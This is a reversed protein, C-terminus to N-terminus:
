YWVQRNDRYEFIREEHGKTRDKLLLLAGSPIGDFVLHNCKAVERGALRWGRDFYYLEYLHGPEVNNTDSKPTFRIRTVIQSRGEGLDLGIWYKTSKASAVTEPKGDFALKINKDYVKYAIHHGTLKYERGTDDSSYFALEALPTRSNPSTKYRLYRYAPKSDSVLVEMDGYPMRDVIGLTDPNNFSPNDSGEFVGGKMNGWQNTLYSFLPYKRYLTVKEPSEDNPVFTRVSGDDGLLFPLGVIALRGGRVAAVTYVVGTGSANFVAKGSSPYTWAVPMWGSGTRFVCLCAPGDDDFPVSIDRCLGYVSSVDMVFPDALVKPIGAPAVNCRNYVARYIKAVKKESAVDFPCSDQPEVIYKVPFISADIKNYRKAEKEKEYVTYTAGDNMVLSVWSHGVQSYNAWLPVVDIAVPIALARLVSALLICRQECSAQQLHDITLVDIVYPCSPISQRVSDVIHRYVSVFAECLNTKGEILPLYKERLSERWGECLREDKVRYPLIYRCFHDFSISDGWPAAAWYAFAKDIDDIMMQPTILMSDPVYSVVGTNKSIDWADSLAQKSCPIKLNRVRGVYDDLNDGEPSSHGDINDILFIAARLKLSDAANHRYHELVEAYRVNYQAFVHSSIVLAVALILLIRKM